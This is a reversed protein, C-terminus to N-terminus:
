AINPYGTLDLFIERGRYGPMEFIGAIKKTRKRMLDGPKQQFRLGIRKVNMSISSM